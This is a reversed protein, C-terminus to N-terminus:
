QKGEVSELWLKHCRMIIEAAQETADVPDCHTAILDRLERNETFLSDREETLQHAESKYKDCEAALDVLREELQKIYYKRM